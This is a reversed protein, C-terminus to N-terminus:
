SDSDSNDAAPEDSSNFKESILIGINNVAVKTEPLSILSDQLALTIEKEVEDRSSEETEILVEFKYQKM